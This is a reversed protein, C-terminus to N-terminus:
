LHAAPTAFSLRLVTTWTGFALCYRGFCETHLPLTFRRGPAILNMYIQRRNLESELADFRSGPALLVWCLQLLILLRESRNIDGVVCSPSVAMIWPYGRPLTWGLALTPQSCSLRNIDRNSQCATEISHGALCNCVEPSCSSVGEMRREVVVQVSM